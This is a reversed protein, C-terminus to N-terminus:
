LAKRIYIYIHRTEARRVDQQNKALMLIIKKQKNTSTITERKEKIEKMLILNNFRRFLNEYLFKSSNFIYLSVYYVMIIISIAFAFHRRNQRCIWNLKIKNKKTNASQLASSLHIYKSCVRSQQQINISEFSESNM